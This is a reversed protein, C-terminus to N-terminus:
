WHLFSAWLPGQSLLRLLRQAGNRAAQRPWRVIIICGTYFPFRLSNRDTYSTGTAEEILM